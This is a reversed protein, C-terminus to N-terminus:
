VTGSNQQLLVLGRISLESMIVYEAMHLLLYCVQGDGYAAGM